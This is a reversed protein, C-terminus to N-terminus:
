IKLIFLIHNTRATGLTGLIKEFFVQFFIKVFQVFPDFKTYIIIAVIRLM